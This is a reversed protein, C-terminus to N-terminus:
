SLNENMSGTRYGLLDVTVYSFGLEHLKEYIFRHKSEAFLQPLEEQLLEIRALNGHVRVRFQKFGLDWLLQEAKDVIELKVTTIQEGYAFRSALCAFSPKNWTPLNLEDSLLRIEAKTLCVARLPSQVNLEALAKLGPRYDNLDDLNSGECLVSNNKEAIDLLNSFLAKKCIYCRNVLNEAFGDIAFEDFDYYIHRIGQQKCFDEAEALDREPILGSRATVATVRNELALQAAKLLFTSDVGGSFAIMVKGFKKLEEQLLIMKKAIKENKLTDNMIMGGALLNHIM